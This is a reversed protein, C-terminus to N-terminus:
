DVLKNTYIKSMHYVSFCMILLGSFPMIAYIYGLPIQLTGSLQNLKLTIYVLNFGGVVMVIAAFLFILVEIILSVKKQKKISLKQYVFDMSLHERKANLYAAGLISLWILSFRALEETWSFSTKLIYRSFVQWLVDLVLLGFISVLFIEIFRIIKNFLFDIHKM